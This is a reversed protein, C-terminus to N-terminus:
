AKEWKRREELVKKERARNAIFKEIAEAVATMNKSLPLDHRTEIALRCIPCYTESPAIM